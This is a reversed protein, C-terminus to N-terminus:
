LIRIQEYAFKRINLDRDLVLLEGSNNVGLFKYKGEWISGDVQIKRWEGYGELKLNVQKELNVNHESWMQYRFEVKQLLRALFYERSIEIETKAAQRLSVATEKLEAGFDTQNINIGIGVIVQVLTNGSFVTETLIGCLKKDKYLIDNPWKIKCSIGSFDELTDEVALACALTLLPLREANPPEFILSFTLNDDGYTVWKRDYQGRGGTQHDAVILAGHLSEENSLNKAYSNTSPIEDLFYFSRGLWSTALEEELQKIDFM